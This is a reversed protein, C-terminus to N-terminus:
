GLRMIGPGHSPHRHAPNGAKEADMMMENRGVVATSGASSAVPTGGGAELMGAGDAKEQRMARDYRRRRRQRKSCCFCCCSCLEYCQMVFGLLTCATAVWMFVLMRVGLEARINLDVGNNSFVILFITWMATAIVSAALTTFFTLFTLITLPINRRKSVPAKFYDNKLESNAIPARSSIHATSIHTSPVSLPTLFLCLFTLILSVLFLAFMWHSATRAIDLATSIQGPLVVLTTDILM